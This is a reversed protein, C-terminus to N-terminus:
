KKGKPAKVRTGRASDWVSDSVRAPIKRGRLRQDILWMGVVFEERNLGRNRGHYVLDWVEGLEDHPLRSRAWIDRVIVDLVLDSDPTDSDRRQAAPLRDLFVGRNSAWVAEYRKRERPSVEDRWRKRAGEHHAHKKKSQLPKRRRRRHHARDPDSDSTPAPAARLTTLLTGAQRQPSHSASTSGSHHKTAHGPHPPHLHKPGHRRPAPLPPPLNPSPPARTAALNGAMIASALSDLALTSTSPHNTDMTTSTRTIPKPRRAATTPHLNNHM